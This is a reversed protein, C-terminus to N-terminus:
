RRRVHFKVTPSACHFKGLRDTVKVTGIAHGGKVRGRFKVTDTNGYQTEAFKGHRMVSAEFGSEMDVLTYGGGCHLEIAFGLLKVRSGWVKLKLKRHQATKGSFVQGSPDATAVAPLLGVSIWGSILLTTLWRMM